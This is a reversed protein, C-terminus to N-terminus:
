SFSYVPVGKGRPLHSYGTAVLLTALESSAITQFSRTLLIIRFGARPSNGFASPLLHEVVNQSPVWLTRSMVMRRRLDLFTGFYLHLAPVWNVRCTSLV